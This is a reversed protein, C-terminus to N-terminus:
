GWLRAFALTQANEPVNRLFSDRWRADTIRDARAMLRSRAERILRSAGPVNGTQAVASAHVLRILSEGEEVGDLRALVDM